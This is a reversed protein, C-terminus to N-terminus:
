VSLHTSTTLLTRGKAVVEWDASAFTIGNFAENLKIQLTHLSNLIIYIRLRSPSVRATLNRIAKEHEQSTAM